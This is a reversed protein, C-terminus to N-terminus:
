TGSLEDLATEIKSVDNNLDTLKQQLIIKIDMDITTLMQNTAASYREKLQKLEKELSDRKLQKSLRTIPTHTMQEEVNMIRDETQRLKVLEGDYRRTPVPLPSGVQILTQKTVSQVMENLLFPLHQEDNHQTFHILQRETLVFPLKESSIDEILLPIIPYNQTDARNLERNCFKSGIYAPSLMAIMGCANDVGNQLALLWNDGATIGELQDMWVSIGKSLLHYAVKLAIQQEKYRYSIFIYPKNEQAM